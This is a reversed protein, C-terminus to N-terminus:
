QPDGDFYASAPDDPDLSPSHTAAKHEILSYLAPLVALTTFTAAILGGIVARGLSATQESGQGLGIALPLMGAIMASATMLIPRLRGSAGEQAAERVPRGARRSEEAFTVLLISNAVAIGVAMIAGIYSQVNLTTGTILLMLAVGALVAPATALIAFSLRISQFYAALLVFIAGAALLLGSQLGALTDRLPPIQGRVSVSVGRPPAGADKV